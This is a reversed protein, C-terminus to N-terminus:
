YREKYLRYIVRVMLLIILSYALSSIDVVWPIICTDLRCFTTFITVIILCFIGIWLYFFRKAINGLLPYKLERWGWLVLQFATPLAIFRLMLGITSIIHGPTNFLKNLYEM